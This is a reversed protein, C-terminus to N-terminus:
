RGAVDAYLAHLGRALDAPTDDATVIAQLRPYQPDSLWGTGHVLACATAALAHSPRETLTAPLRPVLWRLLRANDEDSLVRWHGPLVAQLTDRELPAGMRIAHTLRNAFGTLDDGQWLTELWTKVAKVLTLAVRSRPIADDLAGTVLSAARPDMWFRHGFSAAVVSLRMVDAEARIGRAQAWAAVAEIVPGLVDAAVGHAGYHGAFTAHLHPARAAVWRGRATDRFTEFQRDSFTLM